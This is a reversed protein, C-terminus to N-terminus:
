FRSTLKRRRNKRNFVNIEVGIFVSYKVEAPMNYMWRFDVRQVFQLTGILKVHPTILFGAVGGFGFSTDAFGGRSTIGYDAYIGLELKEIFFNNFTYGVEASWRNYAPLSTSLTAYECVPAVYMYGNKKQLGTWRMKLLMNTLGAEIGHAEDGMVTIKPDLSGQFTVMGQAQGTQYIGVLLIVYVLTQLITRKISIQNKM